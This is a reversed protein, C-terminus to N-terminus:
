QGVAVKALEAATGMSSELEDEIERLLREELEPVGIQQVLEVFFGRVVLRRAEDQPIGRAQLYFLQEDDFRGTASAHGAGTIEGTEIELNPVSDARAGDTLILNRNVEYTDTGSANARILVDGVWVTHASEGQLAGKYTVRSRCNAEAHDVFLRHEQHQGSDAFYMGLMEVDGGPGAFAASPTIRVVDGGLTVVVHKLMADRGIKAQHASLHVTDDDWDALSVVTLSASDGVILEVNDALTASGRHDLVVVGTSFPKADVILHAYAAGEKGQGTITVYTPRTAVTERPFTVVTAQEFSSWAQAAVRDGPKGTRGIREDGRGVTEVKAQEAADVEVLVGPGPTATGDHLGRVRDLPTFRWDEERGTLVAFDAVDYSTPRAARSQQPVPSGPGHSHPKAQQSVDTTV